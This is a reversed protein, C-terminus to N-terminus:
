PTIYFYYSSLSNSSQQIRLYTHVCAHVCIFMHMLLLICTYIHQQIAEQFANYQHNHAFEVYYRIILDYKVQWDDVTAQWEAIKQISELKRKRENIFMAIDKM